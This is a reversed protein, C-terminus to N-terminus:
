PQPPVSRFPRPRVQVEDPARIHATEIQFVGKAKELLAHSPRRRPYAV